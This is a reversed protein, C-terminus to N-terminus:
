CVNGREYTPLPKHGRAQYEEQTILNNVAELFDLRNEILPESYPYLCGSLYDEPSDEAYLGLRESRALYIRALRREQADTLLVKISVEKM